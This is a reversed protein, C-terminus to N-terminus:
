IAYKSRKSPPHVARQRRKGTPVFRHNPKWDYKKKEEV